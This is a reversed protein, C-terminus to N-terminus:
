PSFNPPRFSHIVQLLPQAQVDGLTKIIQSDSFHALVQLLVQGQERPTQDSHLAALLIPITEPNEMRGLADQISQVRDADPTHVMYKLLSYAADGNGVGALGEVALNFLDPSPASQLRGSLAPVADPNHLQRFADRFPTLDGGGSQEAMDFLTNVSTFTGVYSLASSIYSAYRPDQQEGLWNRLATMVNTQSSSALAQAISRRYPDPVDEDFFHDLLSPLMEPTVSNGLAVQLTLRLRNDPNDRLAQTLTPVAEPNRINKLVSTFASRAEPDQLSRIHDLLEKVADPTGIGALATGALQSLEANGSHLADLLEPVASNGRKAADILLQKIRSEDKRTLADGM